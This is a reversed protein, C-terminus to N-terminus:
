KGTTECHDQIDPHRLQELNAVLNYNSLRVGKPLGTTGSSYPLLAVDSPQPPPIDEPLSNMLLDRFSLLSSDEVDDPSVVIISKHNSLTPVVQKLLPLLQPITITCKVEANQFQRQIEESFCFLASQHNQYLSKISTTKDM